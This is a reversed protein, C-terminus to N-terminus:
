ASVKALVDTARKRWGDIVTMGNDSIPESPDNDILTQVLDVLADHNNVAKIILAANEKERAGSTTYAIIEGDASLIQIAGPWPQWGDPRSEWPLKSHETM